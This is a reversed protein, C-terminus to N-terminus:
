YAKVSKVKSYTGYVKKNTSDYYYYRVQVYYKKGKKLGTKTYTNKALGTTKYKAAKMKKSTSYRFRFGRKEGYKNTYKISKAVFGTGKGSKGKLSSLKATEVKIKVFKAKLVINKDSAPVKNVVKGKYTWGAFVYGKKGASKYKTKNWGPLKVGAKTKNITTVTKGGNGKLTVSITKPTETPKTPETPKPTETPKTPETPKPTEEKKDVYLNKFSVAGDWLGLGMHGTKINFFEKDSEKDADFTYNLCENDDVYVKVADAEKEIKVHHYKGDNINSSMEGLAIDGDRYMRFLRVNKSNPAFQICYAGNPDTSSSAFILNVLGNTFAMDTEITSKENVIADESMYFDNASQNSDSLVEGDIAWNGSINVFNKINTKFNNEKVNITFIKKKSPDSKSSATVTAKGSKLATVVAKGDSEKISVVDKGETVDWTITQDMSIPFVYASLEVSDGAYLIQNENQMSGVSEVDTLEEKDTWISKMPYIDIDAKVPDGEVLVSAGLSTPTPFIQNAGAATNNSSFVEVSAKDVYIHLEVSGDENKKV